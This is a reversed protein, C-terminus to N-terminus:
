NAGDFNFANQIGPPIEEGSIPQDVVNPTVDDIFENQTNAQTNRPDTATFQDTDGSGLTYFDFKMQESIKPLLKKV